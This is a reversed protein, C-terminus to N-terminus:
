NNESKISYVVKGDGKPIKQLKGSTVLLELADQVINMATEYRQQTLWWTTIGEISDAANPNKIIYHTIEDAVRDVLRDHQNEM